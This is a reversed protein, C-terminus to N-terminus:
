CSLEGVVLITTVTNPDGTVLDLLVLWKSPDHTTRPVFAATGLDDAQEFQSQEEGVGAM